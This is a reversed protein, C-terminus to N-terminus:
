FGTGINLGRCKKLGGLESKWNDMGSAALKVAGFGNSVRIVKYM